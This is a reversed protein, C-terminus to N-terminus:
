LCNEIIFSKFCIVCRIQSVDHGLRELIKAIKQCGLNGSWDNKAGQVIIKGTSFLLATIKPVRLRIILGNFRQPNYESNNTWMVIRLLDLPCGM